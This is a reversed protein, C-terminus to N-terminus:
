SGVASVSTRKKFGWACVIARELLNANPYLLEYQADINANRVVPSVCFGSVQSDNSLQERVWM